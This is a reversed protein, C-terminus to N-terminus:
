ARADVAMGQLGANDNIHLHTRAPLDDAFDRLHDQLPGIEAPRTALFQLTREVGTTVDGDIEWEGAVVWDAPARSAMSEYLVVVRFGRDDALRAWLEDDDLGAPADLVDLDGLGAFDTLPGDHLYGIYGLQDTAVPHGDYYRDLFLGAQYQQRYMDDAALPAEVTHSIKDVGLVVGVVCVAALARTRVATPVEAVVLLMLYVGIALLYAQYREYWGVDALTAHLSAAVALTAAPVAAPAKRGRVLLYLVAASVLVVLLPDFYLRDFVDAPALGDQQAVGTGQGKALISNPLWGGGLARNLAGFAAIPLAAATLVAAARRAQARGGHAVLGVALGAAVFATEFRTLAALAVLALIAAPRADAAGTSWRHVGVVAALVLAVHLTHEMGVVALGPLFLVVTVLVVTAVADVPRARGPRLAVPSTALVWIVGLGALVNLALPLWPAAPDSARIAAATIATWLPSSSASEFHGAVVGWTGDGALRDAIALHIAADDLAYVMHGRLRLLIAGVVLAVTMLYSAAGWRLVAAAASTDPEAAAVPEATRRTDIAAVTAFGGV